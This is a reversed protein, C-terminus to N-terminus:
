SIIFAFTFTDSDVVEGSDPDSLIVKGLGVTPYFQPNGGENITHLGSTIVNAIVDPLIYELADGIKDILLDMLINDGSLFSFFWSDYWDPENLAPMEITENITRSKQADFTFTKDYVTDGLYGEMLKSIAKSVLNDNENKVNDGISEWWAMAPLSLRVQVNMKRARGPNTAHIRLNMDQGKVYIAARDQLDSLIGPPIERYQLNNELFAIKDGKASMALEDPFVGEYMRFPRQSGSPAYERDFLYVNKLGDAMAIYKGNASQVLPPVKGSLDFNWKPTNNEPTFGLYKDDGALTIYKGDQSIEVSTYKADENSYKWKPNKSNKNFFYLTDSHTGIVFKDGKASIAVDDVKDTTSKGYLTTKPKYKWVVGSKTRDIFALGADSGSIIYRGDVSMAIDNVFEGIESVKWQKVPKNSSKEFLYIMGSRCGIASYKGDDSITVDDCPYGTTTYKWLPKKSNKNFLRLNTGAAAIYDGNESLAFEFIKDGAKFKWVPKKSQTKFLWFTGSSLLAGATKEAVMYKGDKSMAVYNYGTYNDPRSRTWSKYGAGFSFNPLLLALGAAILFIKRM